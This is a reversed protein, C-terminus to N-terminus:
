SLRLIIACFKTKHPFDPCGFLCAAQSLWTRALTLFTGCFLLISLLALKLAVASLRAFRLWLTHSATAAQQIALWVPRFRVQAAYSISVTLQYWALLALYRCSCHELLSLSQAVASYSGVAKTQLSSPCPLGRCSALKLNRCRHRKRKLNSKAQAFHRFAAYFFANSLHNDQFLIRSIVPKRKIHM